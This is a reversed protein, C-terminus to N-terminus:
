RMRGDHFVATIAAAMQALPVVRDVVGSAVAERPMGYVVSSQEDQALVLGGAAKLARLGTVGDDGMGTLMVGLGGSGFVEAVTRFLHTASPRHGAIPPDAALAVTNRSAVGLHADQPAVLVEGDRLPQGDQALTVPLPCVRDLWDALGQHFGNTIHQVVLVPGPLDQEFASLITALAAPGGTSSAIAVVKTRPAPAAPRESITVPRVRRVLKVEAMLRTTTTLAAADRAFSPATPGRPKALIQLAGAELAQFSRQVDDYEYSASVLVIPTPTAAMIRRTAELGDMAPMAMDMVIVDPRLQATLAVAELGDCAQGVVQLGPDGDLIAVVLQRATPSDEAVLM